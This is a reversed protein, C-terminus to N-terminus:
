DKNEKIVALRAYRHVAAIGKLCSARKKYGESVAIVEGNSAKLRFRFEGSKDEYVEFCGGEADETKDPAAIGDYVARFFAAASRGGEADLSVDAEEAVAATIETAADFIAEDYQKM